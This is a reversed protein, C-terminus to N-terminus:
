PTAARLERALKEMAQLGEAPSSAEGLAKVLASGCIVGDAGWSVIQKAHEARSVGFGVCVPKDTVAKLESVLGEVRGSVQEKMGTVGTVSVLYVFGQSAQAIARMRAQPTTPTALLVLEIGAKECAARVSVTEELPLDPVLLGAAGAEKITRAFNDLGKRMIPNYYTFMVLPAKMAPATRRVMEIVKDLTTHKDLARTAAGQIVPGDALPDSYPVGLEIVDAGVEDLKRLALSTTDLDPDGACIFPIFAVKGKAKLANMTGSVSKTAPAAAAVSRVTLARRGRGGAPRVSSRQMLMM